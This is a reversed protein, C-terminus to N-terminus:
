HNTACRLCSIIGNSGISHDNFLSPRGDHATSDCLDMCYVLKNSNADSLKTSSINKNHLYFNLQNNVSLYFITSIFIMLIFFTYKYRMPSKQFYNILRLFWLQVIGFYISIYMLMRPDDMIIKSSNIGNNSASNSNMDVSGNYYFMLITSSIDYQDDVYLM